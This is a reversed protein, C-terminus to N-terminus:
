ALFPRAFMKKEKHTLNWSALSLKEKKEANKPRLETRIEIAAMGILVSEKDKKNKPINLLTGLLYECLNKEIHM